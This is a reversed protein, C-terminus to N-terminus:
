RSSGAAPLPRLLKRVDRSRVAGLVDTMQVTFVVGDADIATITADQLKDLRRAQFSRGDPGELIAVAGAGSRVVGKVSVDAMSLSGLSARVRAPSTASKRPVILSVFPDRRGDDEYPASPVPRASADAPRGVPTGLPLREQAEALSALTLAAALFRVVTKM